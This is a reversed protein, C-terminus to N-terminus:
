SATLLAILSKILDGIGEPIVECYMTMVQFSGKVYVLFILGLGILPLLVDFLHNKHAKTYSFLLIFPIM